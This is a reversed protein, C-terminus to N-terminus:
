PAPRLATVTYTSGRLSIKVQVRDGAQLTGLWAPDAVAFVMTMPGMDLAPIPGHRLTVRQRAADVRRVEADVFDSEQAQAAAVPSGHGGHDAQGLAVPPLTLLTASLGLAALAARAPSPINLM